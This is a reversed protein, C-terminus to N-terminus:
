IFTNMLVSEQECMTTTVTKVSMLVIFTKSVACVCCQRGNRNSVKVKTKEAM